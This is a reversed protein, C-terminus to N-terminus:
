RRVRWEKTTSDFAIECTTSLSRTGPARVTLEFLIADWEPRWAIASKSDVIFQGNEDVGKLVAVVSPTKSREYFLFYFAELTRIDVVSEGNARVLPRARLYRTIPKLKRAPYGEFEYASVDSIYVSASAIKRSAPVPRGHKPAFRVYVSPAWFRRGQSVIEGSQSVHIELCDGLDVNENARKPDYGDTTEGNSASIETPGRQRPRYGLWYATFHGAIVALCFGFFMLISVLPWSLHAFITLIGVSSAGFLGFVWTIIQWANSLDGYAKWLFRMIKLIRM